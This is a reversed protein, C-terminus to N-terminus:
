VQLGKTEECGTITNFIQIAAGSAGKGLNDYLAILSVREDNGTVCIKMSDKNKWSDCPIFGEYELAEIDSTIILPRNKYKDIYINRIDDINKGTGKLSINVTVCMMSYVDTIIPSFVPYQSTGSYQKMEKLHKHTQTLAYINPVSLSANRNIDQYSKIMSKGGGSYGTLSTCSFPYDNTLINNELLPKVLAIFGSAHCGPVCIRKSTKVSNYVDDSLELLGYTWDPNVRHVTSADIIITDTNQALMVSEKAAEDPLCLFVIDAKEIAEKRASIDKRLSEELTILFVDDRQILRDHIRLGTTGISGDIFVNVM